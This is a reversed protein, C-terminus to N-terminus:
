VAQHFLTPKVIGEGVQGDWSGQLIEVEQNIVDPAQPFTTERILAEKGDISIALQGQKGHLTPTTAIARPKTHIWIAEGAVAEASCIDGLYPQSQARMQWDLKAEELVQSNAQLTQIQWGTVTQSTAAIGQELSTWEMVITEHDSGNPHEQDVIWMELPGMSVTTMALDIISIGPTRKPRTSIGMENNIYLGSEDILNELPGANVRARALPNWLSSHAKFDGIFLCRGEVIQDWQM